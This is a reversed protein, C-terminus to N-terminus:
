SILDNLVRPMCNLLSRISRSGLFAPMNKELSLSNCIFLGACKSVANTFAVKSGLTGLTNLSVTKALTIQRRVTGHMEPTSLANAAGAAGPAQQECCGRDVVAGEGSIPHADDCCGRDVM